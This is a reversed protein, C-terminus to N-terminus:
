KELTFILYVIMGISSFLILMIYSLLYTLLYKITAQWVGIQFFQRFVYAGYFLGIALMFILTIFSYQQGPFFASVILVPLGILAFQGQLFSHLVLHEAYNWYRKSFLLYSFAALLPIMIMPIFNLYKKVEQNLRQQAAVIQESQPKGVMSQIESQQRDYVGLSLNIAVSIAITVVLFRLPHYYRLTQGNLYNRIMEGPATFLMKITHLFGRDLNTFINFLESFIYRITIRESIVKQGCTSCYAGYLIEGCNKCEM